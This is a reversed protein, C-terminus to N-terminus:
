SRYKLFKLIRDAQSVILHGTDPLLEMKAQKAFMQLRKISKDAPILQDSNGFLMLIPMTLKSLLQDSFIPM